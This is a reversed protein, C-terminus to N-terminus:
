ASPAGSLGYCSAPVAPSGRRVCQRGSRAFNTPDANATARHDTPTRSDCCSDSAWESGLLHQLNKIEVRHGPQPHITGHQRHHPPCILTEEDVGAAAYVTTRGELQLLLTSTELSIGISGFLGKRRSTLYSICVQYGLGPRRDRTTCRATELRSRATVQLERMLFM